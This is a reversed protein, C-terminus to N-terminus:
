EMTVITKGFNEGRMLKCFQAPTNEIGIVEDEIYQISGDRLWQSATSIFEDQKDYHDYVVVGRITARAGVIPGLNPGPPPTSLNYQTMFGCLVIRAEYALNRTMIDLTEGGVNDFYIDVGKPCLEKIRQDIDETKYNICDKFGFVEKVASCKEESGAIGIVNVGHIQAIQGVMCGVPGSAASVVLVDGKKPEGYVMLGAYATLGPMGMIGLATSLKGEHGNLKRVGDGDSVGYEQWGNSTLVVEGKKYDPHNSEIIESVTRGVITDGVNVKESYIHRGTIVGRIYPDLSLHITRSLFQNKQPTSIKEEILEFDGETPIGEPSKKLVIKKNITM